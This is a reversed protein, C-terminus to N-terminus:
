NEEENLYEWIWVLEDASLNRIDRYYVEGNDCFDNLTEYCEAYGDNFAVMSLIKSDADNVSYIVPLEEFSEEDDADFKLKFDGKKFFGNILTNRIYSLAHSMDGNFAQKFNKNIDNSM